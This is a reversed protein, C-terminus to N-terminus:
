RRIVKPVLRRAASAAGGEFRGFLVSWEEEPSRTVNVPAFTDLRSHFVDGHQIFYVESTTRGWVFGFADESVTASRIEQLTSADLVVVRADYQYCYWSYYYCYQKYSRVLFFRGDASWDGGEFYQESSSTMARVNTGDANVLMVSQENRTFAIKGGDPAWDAYLSAGNTLGLNRELSGDTRLVALSTLGNNDLVATVLRQGDPSWSLGSFRMAGTSVSKAGTTLDLVVLNSGQDSYRRFALRRGDASLAADGAGSPGDELPFRLTGDPNMADLGSVFQSRYSVVLKEGSLTPPDPYCRVQFQATTTLGEIVGVGVRSTGVLCRPDLTSLAVQYARPQLDFRLEGDPPIDIGAGGDITIRYPDSVTRQGITQTKVVLQGPLRCVITFSLAVRQRPVVFVIRSSESMLECRSEVDELRLTHMGAPVEVLRQGITALPDGLPEDDLLLRFGQPDAAHGVKLVTVELEGVAAIVSVAVNATVGESTAVLTTQGISVGTVRGFSTVTAISPDQSTWTVLRGTLATGTVNQPIATLQVGENVMVELSTPEVYLVAVPGPGTHESNCSLLLLSAIAHRAILRWARPRRASDTTM